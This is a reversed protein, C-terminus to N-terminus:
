LDVLYDFRAMQRKHNTVIRDVQRHTLKKKWGGAIGERFFAKSHLSKEQFGKAMEQKKLADFSTNKIARELRGKDVTHGIHRIVKAFTEAPKDKMDEYRVVLLAPHAEATWSEVHFSWSSLFEPVLGSQGPSSTQESGMLSIGEDVEVGLHDAFSPAVDLPSRVIYIAGATHKSSILPFGDPTHLCSHTKVLVNGQSLHTIYEQADPRLRMVERVSLLEPKNKSFPAYWYADSDSIAFFKRGNIDIPELSGVLYNELFMRLWTNGSKPYSALWIIGAM